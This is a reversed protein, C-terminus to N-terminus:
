QWAGKLAREIWIPINVLRATLLFAIWWVAYAYDNFSAPEPKLYHMEGGFGRCWMADYIRQARAYTRLLLSGLLSGWAAKAVGARGGGSRLSYALLVHQVEELLLALYRYLFLMQTVIVAPVGIRLMATCIDHIGTTALLALGATVALLFRILISAFSVWGGSITGAQVSIVPTHDLLPNAGALLVIFPFLYLIRKAFFEVPLRGVSLLVVPYLLQPLLASVEYRGYSALVIMYFLTVAM